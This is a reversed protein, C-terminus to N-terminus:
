LLSLQELTEKEVEARKLKSMPGEIHVVETGIQEALFEAAVTRHCTDKNKCACMLIIPQKELVPRLIAAGQAPDALQIAEGNRYNVNGLAHVHMYRQDGLLKRLPRSNWHPVRSRPSFRVDVLRADYLNVVQALADPTWGSYGLTYITNM